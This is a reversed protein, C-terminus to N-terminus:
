PLYVILQLQALLQNYNVGSLVGWDERWHVPIFITEDPLCINM